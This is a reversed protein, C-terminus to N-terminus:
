QELTILEYQIVIVEIFSGKFHFSYEDIFFLCNFIIWLFFLKLPLSIWSVNIKLM